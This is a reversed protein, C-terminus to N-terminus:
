LKNAEAAALIACDALPSEASLACMSTLPNAGAEISKRIQYKTTQCSGVMLFIFVLIGTIAYKWIKAIYEDDM